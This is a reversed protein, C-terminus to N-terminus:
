ITEEKTKIVFGLRKIMEVNKRTLTKQNLLDAFLRSLECEPYFTEVGYRSVHKVTLELDNSM